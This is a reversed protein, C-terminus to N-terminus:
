YKQMFSRIPTRVVTGAPRVVGPRVVGPRVIGGANPRVVGPRVIGPRVTAMGPRLPTAATRGPVVGGPRVTAAQFGGPRVVTGSPRVTTPARAAVFNSAPRQTPTSLVPRGFGLVIGAKPTVTPPSIRPRKSADLAPNTALLPRKVGTALTGPPKVTVVGPAAVTTPGWSNNKECEAMYKLLAETADSGPAPKFSQIIYRRRQPTMKALMMKTRTPDLKWKAVFLAILRLEAVPGGASAGAAPTVGPRAVGLAGAALTLGGPVVPRVGGLLGPVTMGLQKPLEPMPVEELPIPDPAGAERRHADILQLDTRMLEDKWVRGKYYDEIDAVPYFRLVERFLEVGSKKISEEVM